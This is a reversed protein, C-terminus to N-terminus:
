GRVSGFAAEFAALNPGGSRDLVAFTVREFAGRCPGALADRFLGAITAPDNRFVGCGWAGLVLTRHGHSAFVSLVRLTRRRMAERIADEPSPARARVVGANVAPSTVFSVLHPEGLLAGGDDRFVPVDPSHIAWDTYTPDRRREHHAYMARGALCAHLASSRALSEEQARSGGLFGGGPHRASAFNLAAPRAAALRRCAALTTESTVEVRTAFRDRAPAPVEADPPHERTGRVAADIAARLDVRRGGADYGGAAVVALTERAIRAAEERSPM